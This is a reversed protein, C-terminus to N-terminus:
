RALLRALSLSFFSLCSHLVFGDFTRKETTSISSVREESKEKKKPQDIAELSTTGARENARWREEGWNYESRVSLTACVMLCMAFDLKRGKLLLFSAAINGLV